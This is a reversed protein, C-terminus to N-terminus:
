EEAPLFEITEAISLWRDAPPDAAYCSLIAWSGGNTFVYRTSHPMDTSEVERDIRLTRGAALDLFSQEWGEKGGSKGADWEAMDDLGQWGRDQPTRGMDHASCPGDPSLAHVGRFVPEPQSRTTLAGVVWEEPFDLKFGLHPLVVREDFDYVIGGDGVPIAEITEALGRWRDPPAEDGTHCYLWAVTDGITVLYDSQELWADADIRERRDLRIGTGAPLVVEAHAVFEGDPDLRAGTQLIDAVEGTTYEGNTAQHFDRLECLGSSWLNTVVVLSSATADPHDVAVRWGEPLAFALGAVPVEIRRAGSDHLASDDESSGRGAMPLVVVLAAAVVTAALFRM